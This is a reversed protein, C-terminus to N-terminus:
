ERPIGMEKLIDEIYRELDDVCIMKNFEYIFISSKLLEVFEQIAKERENCLRSILLSNQYNLRDNETQLRSNNSIPEWSFRNIANPNEDNKGYVSFKIIKEEM